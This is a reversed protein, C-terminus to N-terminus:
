KVTITQVNELTGNVYVAVAVTRGKVSRVTFLYNDNLSTYKFWRAGIKVSVVSGKANEVRVAVRNNFSGIVANVEPAAPAAPTVIAITKSVVIDKADAYDGDGNQDYSITVVVNGTDGGGLLASFMLEGDKDTATPLAGFTIGPGTYSVKVAAAVPNSFTDTLKAKVQLTSAPAVSAPATIELKAGVGDSTAGTFTVKTTASKGLSTVTIVTDKQATTSYLNLDFQGNADAIMTISGRKYVNGDFFLIDSPGTVTVSAGNFGASSAANQVKGAIFASNVYAPATATSLRTDLEVVSKKAVESSLKVATSSYLTSGNAGLVVSPTASTVVTTVVWRGVAAWTGSTLKQLTVTTLMPSAIGNDTIVVSAKGNTLAKIGEVTGSGTVVLRYDASPAVAFWQDMVALDLTHSGGKVVTRTVEDSITSGATGSFDVLGYSQEVWNLAFTQAAKNEATATINVTGVSGLPSTVTLTVQGNADTNLTQSGTKDNVKVGTVATSFTVVVPRGASVAAEDADLVTVTVPVALTGKKVDASAEDDTGKVSASQVTAFQVDASSAAVATAEVKAGTAAAGNVFAEATYTGPIARDILATQFTAYTTVTYGTNAATPDAAVATSVTATAFTFRNAAPTSAVTFQQGQIDAGAAARFTVKDGVRLNHDINTTVTVAKSTTAFASVTTPASPVALSWSVNTGAGDFQTDGVDNAGATLAVRVTFTKATDSWVAPTAADSFLAVASGQRTFKVNIDKADNALVQQGNLVPTTTVVASLSVDGPVVTMATAVSLESSKIFKVTRVPSVYETSDIVNNLNTDVWAQVTVERTDGSPAVLELTSDSTRTGTDVVYATGAANRAERLVRIKAGASITSSDAVVAGSRGITFNQFNASTGSVVFSNTTSIRQDAGTPAVRFDTDFSIRQGTRVGSAADTTFTMATSSASVATKAADSATVAGAIRGSTSVGPEVDGSSDTVLFKLNGVTLTSANNATLKFSHGAGAIVTYETGTLPALSVFGNDIGNAYAPASTFGSVLMAAIAGLALGKRTSNKTM